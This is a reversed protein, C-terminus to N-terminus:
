YKLSKELLIVNFVFTVKSAISHFTDVRPLAACSMLGINELHSICQITFDQM